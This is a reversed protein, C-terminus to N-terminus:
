FFICGSRPTRTPCRHLFLLEDELDPNWPNLTYPSLTLFHNIQANYFDSYLLNLNWILDIEHLTQFFLIPQQLEYNITQSPNLQHLPSTLQTKNDFLTTYQILFGLSEFTCLKTPKEDITNFKFGLAPTLRKTWFIFDYQFLCSIRWFFASISRNNEWINFLPLPLKTTIPNLVNFNKKSNIRLPLSQLNLVESAIRLDLFSYPHTKLDWRLSSLNKFFNFTYTSTLQSRFSYNLQERWNYYIHKKNINSLISFKPAKYITRKRTSLMEHILSLDFSRPSLYRLTPQKFSDAANLIQFFNKIFTLNPFGNDVLRPHLKKIYGIEPTKICDLSTQVLRCDISDMNLKYGSRLLQRLCIILFGNTSPLIFSIIMLFNIFIYIIVVLSLSFWTAVFFNFFSYLKFFFWVKFTLTYKKKLYKRIFWIILVFVPSLYIWKYSFYSLYSVSPSKFVPWYSNTYIDSFRGVFAKRQLKPGIFLKNTGFSFASLTTYRVWNYYAKFQRIM